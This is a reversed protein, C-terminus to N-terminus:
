ITLTLSFNSGGQLIPLFVERTWGSKYNRKSWRVFVFFYQFVSSSFINKRYQNFKNRTFRTVAMHRCSSISRASGNMNFVRYVPHRCCFLRCLAPATRLTRALHLCCLFRKPGESHPHRHPTNEKLIILVYYFPCLFCKLLIFPFCESVKIMWSINIFVKLRLFPLFTLVYNETTVPSLTCLSFLTRHFLPARDRTNGIVESPEFSWRWNM